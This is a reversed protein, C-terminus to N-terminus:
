AQNRRKEASRRYRVRQACQKDHFRQREDRVLFMVGCGECRRMPQSSTLAQALGYYIWGLLDRPRPSYMFVDPAGSTGGYQEAETRDLVGDSRSRHRRM